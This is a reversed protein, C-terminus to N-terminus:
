IGVSGLGKGHQMEGPGHPSKLVEKGKCMRNGQLFTCKEQRRRAGLGGELSLESTEVEPFPFNM